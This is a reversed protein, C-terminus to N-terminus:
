VVSKRDQLIRRKHAIGGRAKKARKRGAVAHRHVCSGSLKGLLERVVVVRQLLSQEPDNRPRETGVTKMIARVYAIVLCVQDHVLGIPLRKGHGGFIGHLACKSSITRRSALM